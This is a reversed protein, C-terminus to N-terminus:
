EGELQKTTQYYAELRAQLKSLVEYRHADEDPISVRQVRDYYHSVTPNITKVLVEVEDNSLKM